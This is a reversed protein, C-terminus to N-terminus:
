GGLKLVKEFQARTVPLISLRIGKKLVMMHRLLSDQKLDSRTLPSRLKHVAKVDVKVWPNKGRAYAKPDFYRNGKEFATEDEYAEKVIEAVGVIAPEEIRSHYILVKDGKCAKKLFNRAQYNRVGEWDTRRGKSKWLDEFSFVSPETKFLWYNMAFQSFNRGTKGSLLSIFITM